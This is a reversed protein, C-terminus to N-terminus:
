ILMYSLDPLNNVIQRVLSEGEKRDEASPITHAQESPTEASMTLPSLIALPTTPTFASDSKTAITTTIRQRPRDFASFQDPMAWPDVLPQKPLIGPPSKERLDPVSSRTEDADPRDSVVAYPKNSSLPPLSTATTSSSFLASDDPKMFSNQTEAQAAAVPSSIM